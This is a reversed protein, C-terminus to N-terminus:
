GGLARRAFAAFQERTVPDKPCFETNAPPNCGKTIGATALRGVDSAFPSSAPVDAFAIGAGAPLDLSRVAFAAFQERTVRGEPCFRDDTPPNCGKTIGATALRQIDSRFISSAPVDAFVRGDNATLGLARGWFSAFQERTIPDKPCFETNAPPNCGKTIGVEALWEIDAKLASDDAVDSFRGTGIPPPPEPALVRGSDDLVGPCLGRRRLEPVAAQLAAITNRYNANADHLIIVGGAKTNRTINSAMNSASNGQWDQPDVTWMLHAYGMAAVVSRIRSSTDGYPPRWVLLPDAGADRIARETKSITTRIQSDSLRTAWEHGWSHNGIRHGADETARVVSPLTAARNGMVFFTGPADLADLARVVAPTRTAHPGDDFTLAYYGSCGGAVALPPPTAVIPAVLAMVLGFGLGRWRM